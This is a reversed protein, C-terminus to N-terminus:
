EACKKCAESLDAFLGNIDDKKVSSFAIRIMQGLAIVGTDYDELMCQRVKEADLGDSLQLCMFYGSNYPLPKFLSDYKEKNKELVEKVAQYRSKLIAFKAKKDMEYEPSKLAKYILSQSIHPANSISARVAGATKDVLAEMASPTLMKGGYTIFGVRFGWVYEEKTAADLKVCLIRDHADALKSFLSEKFIGEEYVLGFYADDFIVALDNGAEAHSILINVIAEAEKKDPSYGTPNHPFNLILITKGKRAALLNKLSELDYADNKYTNYTQFEASYGHQFVLRYNGWYIDPLIIVDGPDTFLFGAMALGHTLGCSVVPLSVQAKLSPNKKYIQKRWEERLDPLGYSSAYPFVQKPPLDICKDIASLRMPEGDDEMGIGITANIRKGRADAAQSLLGKKPFFIARGKESLIDYVFPCDAKLVHNLAEAQPNYSQM